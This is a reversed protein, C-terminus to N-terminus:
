KYEYYKGDKYIQVLYQYNNEYSLEGIIKGQPLYEYLYCDISSLGKYTYEYDDTTLVTINYLNNQKEIKIVVGELINTAANFTSVLYNTDDQFNICEFMIEDSVTNTEGLANNIQKTLLSFNISSRIENNFNFLNYKSFLVMLFLVISSLFIKFFLKDILNKKTRKLKIKSNNKKGRYYKKLIKQYHDM